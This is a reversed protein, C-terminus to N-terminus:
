RHVRISYYHSVQVLQGAVHFITKVLGALLFYILVSFFFATIFRRCAPEGRKPAVSARILSMESATSTSPEPNFNYAPPFPDASRESPQAIITSDSLRSKSDRDSETIIM